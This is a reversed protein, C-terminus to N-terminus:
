EQILLRLVETRLAEKDPTGAEVHQIVGNRDILFSTPMAEVGYATPLRWNEDWGWAVPFDVPFRDLFRIADDKKEDLSIAIVEFGQELLEARLENYEPLSKRCPACWSAWFDLLVVQGQYEQLSITGGANALAETKFFIARDGAEVALAFSSTVALLMALVLKKM